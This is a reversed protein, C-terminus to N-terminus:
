PTSVRAKVFCNRVAVQLTVTSELLHEPVVGKAFAIQQALAEFCREESQSLSRLADRQAALKKTLLPRSKGVAELERDIIDARDNANVSHASAAWQSVLQAYQAESATSQKRM